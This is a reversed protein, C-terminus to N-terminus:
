RGYRGELMRLRRDMDAGAAIDAQQARELDIAKGRPTDIVSDAFFPSTEMEQAMPGVRPEQDAGFGPKYRYRYPRMDGFAGRMRGQAGEAMGMYGDPRGAERPGYLFGSTVGRTDRPGADDYGTTGSVAPRMRGRGGGGLAPAEGISELAARDDADIGGGGGYGGLTEELASPRQEQSRLWDDERARDSMWGDGSGDDGFDEPRRDRYDQLWPPAGGGGMPEIDEKARIDSAAAAGKVAGRFIDGTVAANSARIQENAQQAALRAQFSQDNAHQELQM